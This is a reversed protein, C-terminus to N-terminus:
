RCACVRSSNEHESDASTEPMYCRARPGIGPDGPTYICGTGTGCPSAMVEGEGTDFGSAKLADLVARCSENTGSSGVIDVTAVDFLSEHASCTAWCDAGMEGLYWCFGSWEVGDCFTGADVSGADASTDTDPGADASTDTCTDATDPSGDVSADLVQCSHRPSSCSFLFLIMLGLVFFCVFCAAYLGAWFINDKTKPKM